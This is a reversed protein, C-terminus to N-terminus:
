KIPLCKNCNAMLWCWITHLGHHSSDYLYITCSQITLYLSKRCYNKTVHMQLYTKWIKQFQMPHSFYMSIDHCPFEQWMVPGKQTSDWLSCNIRRVFHCRHKARSKKDGHVHQRVFMRTLPSKLCWSAWTVDNYHCLWWILQSNNWLCM